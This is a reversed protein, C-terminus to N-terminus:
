ALLISLLLRSLLRALMQSSSPGLSPVTTTVGQVPVQATLREAMPPFRSSTTPATLLSHFVTTLNLDWFGTGVFRM